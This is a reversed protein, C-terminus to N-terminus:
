HRVNQQLSTSPLTVGLATMDQTGPVVRCLVIPGFRHIFVHKHQTPRETAGLVLVIPVVPFTLIYGHICVELRWSLHMTITIWYELIGTGHKVFSRICSVRLDHNPPTLAVTLKCM